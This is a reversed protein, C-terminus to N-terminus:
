KIFSHRRSLDFFTISDRTFKMWASFGWSNKCTLVDSCWTVIGADSFNLILHLKSQTINSSFIDTVNSGSGISFSFRMGIGNIHKIRLPM